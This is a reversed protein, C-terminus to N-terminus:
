TFPAIYISYIIIIIIIIIEPIGKIFHLRRKMVFVIFVIEYCIIIIPKQGLLSVNFLKHRLGKLISCFFDHLLRIVHSNFSTNLTSFKTLFTVTIIKKRFLEM